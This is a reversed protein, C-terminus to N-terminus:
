ETTARVFGGAYEEIRSPHLNDDILAVSIDNPRNTWLRLVDRGWRVIWSNLQDKRYVATVAVCSAVPVRGYKVLADDFRSRVDTTSLYRKAAKVNALLEFKSERDGNGNAKRIDKALDRDLM